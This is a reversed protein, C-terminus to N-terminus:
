TLGDAKGPGVVQKKTAVEVQGEHAPATPYAQKVCHAATVKASPDMISITACVSATEGAPITTSGAIITRLAALLTPAQLLAYLLHQPLSPPALQSSQMAEAIQM